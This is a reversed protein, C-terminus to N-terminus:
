FCVCRYTCWLFPKPLPPLSQTEKEPLWLASWLWDKASIIENRKASILPVETQLSLLNLSWKQLSCSVHKLLSPSQFAAAFSSREHIDSWLVKLASSGIASATYTYIIYTKSVYVCYITWNKYVYVHVQLWQKINLGTESQCQMLLNNFFESDGSSANRQIAKKHRPLRGVFQHQLTVQLLCILNFSIAIMLYRQEM